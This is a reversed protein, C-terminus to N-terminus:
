GGGWDPLGVTEVSVRNNIITLAAISVEGVRRQMIHANSQGSVISISPVIDIPMANVLQGYM